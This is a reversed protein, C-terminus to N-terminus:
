GVLRMEDLFLSFLFGRLINAHFMRTENNREEQVLPTQSIPTMQIPKSSFPFPASLPFVLLRARFPFSPRGAATEPM